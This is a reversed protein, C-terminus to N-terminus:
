TIRSVLWMGGHTLILYEIKNIGISKLYSIVEDVAVSSGGNRKQWEEKVMELKGGTDILINGKNYPFKILLCDGQGVDIVSLNFESNLYPFLRHMLIILMFVIYIKKNLFCLVIVVYYVFVFWISPKVFIFQFFDCCCLLDNILELFEILLMYALYVKPVFFSIWAMPFIISSVMPIMILNFIISLFNVEYFYYICIPFSIVFCVFSLYLCRLFWNKIKNIRKNMLVITLSIVYSFQFGVDFVIWPNIMIAVGLVCLMIDLRKIELHFCQNIAFLIFM